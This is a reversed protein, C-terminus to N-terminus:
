RRAREWDEEGIIDMLERIQQENMFFISRTLPDENDIRKFVIRGMHRYENNEIISVEQQYEYLFDLISALEFEVVEFDATNFYDDGLMPGELVVSFIETEYNEKLFDWDIDSLIIEKENFAQPNQARAYSRSAENLVDFFEHQISRDFYVRMEFNEEVEHGNLFVETGQIDTFILSLSLDDGEVRDRILDQNEGFFRLIVELHGISEVYMDEVFPPDTYTMRIIRENMGEYDDWNLDHVSISSRNLQIWLLFGLGLVAVTGIM